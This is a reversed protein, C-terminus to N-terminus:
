YSTSPRPYSGCPRMVNSPCPDSRSCYGSRRAQDCDHRHGVVGLDGPRPDTAPEPHAVSPANHVSPIFASNSTSLNRRIATTGKSDTCLYMAVRLWVWVSGPRDQEFTRRVPHQVAATVLLIGVPARLRQVPLEPVFLDVVEAVLTQTDQGRGHTRRTLILGDQVM